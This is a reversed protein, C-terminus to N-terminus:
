AHTTFVAGCSPCLLNAAESLLDTDDDDELVHYAVGGLDAFFGHDRPCDPCAPLSRGDRTTRARAPGSDHPRRGQRRPPAKLPPIAVSPPRAEKHKPAQNLAQTITLDTDCHACTLLEDQSHGELMETDQDDELVRYSFGDEDLIFGHAHACAPCPVPEAHAPEKHAQTKKHKMRRTPRLAPLTIAHPTSSM